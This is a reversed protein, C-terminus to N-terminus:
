LFAGKQQFANNMGFHPNGFDQTALSDDAVDANLACNKHLICVTLVQSSLIDLWEEYLTVYM